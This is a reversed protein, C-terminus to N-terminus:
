RMMIVKKHYTFEGDNLQIYYTGAPQNMTFVIEERGTFNQSFVQSGLMNKVRVIVIGSKNFDGTIKVTGSTPNPSIIIGKEVVPFKKVKIKKLKTSICSEGSNTGYITLKVIYNQGPGPGPPPTPYTHLPSYGGSFPSVIPTGPFPNPYDFKWSAGTIVTGAIGVSTNNFQVNSTFPTQIANFSAM